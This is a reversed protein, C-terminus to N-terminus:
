ATEDRSSHFMTACRRGGEELGGSFQTGWEDRLKM